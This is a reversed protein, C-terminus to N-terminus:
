TDVFTMMSAWWFETWVAEVPRKGSVVEQDVFFCEPV